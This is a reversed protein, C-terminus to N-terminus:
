SKGERVIAASALFALPIIVAALIGLATLFGILFGLGAALWVTLPVLAALIGALAGLFASPHGIMGLWAQGMATGPLGVWKHYMLGWEEAVGGEHGPPVWTRGAAYDAQAQVSRGAFNFAAHILVARMSAPLM